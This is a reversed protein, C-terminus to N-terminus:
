RKPTPAITPGTGISFGMRTARLPSDPSARARHDIKRQRQSAREGSQEPRSRPKLRFNQYKALLDVHQPSLDGFLGANLLMSRKNSTQSDRSTGVVSSANVTTLGSVTIRQCRAPKRAQQRKLDLGRPPRDFIGSSIRLENPVHADGHADGVWQPRM